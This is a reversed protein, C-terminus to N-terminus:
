MYIIQAGELSALTDDGTTFLNEQLLAGLRRALLEVRQGGEPVDGETGKAVIAATFGKFAAASEAM